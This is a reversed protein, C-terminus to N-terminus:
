FIKIAEQVKGKAKLVDGKKELLTESNMLESDNISALVEMAKDHGFNALLFTIENIKQSDAKM